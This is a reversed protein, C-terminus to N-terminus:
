VVAHRMGARVKEFLERSDIFDLPSMRLPIFEHVLILQIIIATTIVIVQVIYLVHLLLKLPQRHAFFNDPRSNLFCDSRM